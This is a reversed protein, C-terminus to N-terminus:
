LDPSAVEWDDVDIDSLDSAEQDSAGDPPDSEPSSEPVPLVVEDDSAIFDSCDVEDESPPENELSPKSQLFRAARVRRRRSPKQLASEVVDRIANRGAALNLLHDPGDFRDRVARKLVRWQYENM